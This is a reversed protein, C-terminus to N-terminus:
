GALITVTWIFSVVDNVDKNVTPFSKRALIKGLSNYIVVERMPGTAVGPSATAIFEVTNM